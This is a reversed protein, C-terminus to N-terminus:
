KKYVENVQKLFDRMQGTLSKAVGRVHSYSEVLKRKLYQFEDRRLPAKSWNGGANAEFLEGILDEGFWAGRIRSLLWAADEDITRLRDRMEALRERVYIAEELSGASMELRIASDVPLGLVERIEEMLEGATSYSSGKWGAPMVPTQVPVIGAEHGYKRTGAWWRQWQAKDYEKRSQHMWKEWVLWEPGEKIRQKYAQRARM